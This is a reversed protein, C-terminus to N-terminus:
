CEFANSIVNTDKKKEKKKGGNSRKKRARARARKECGNRRRKKNREGRQLISRESAFSLIEASAAPSNLKGKRDTIDSYFFPFFFVTTQPAGRAGRELPTIEGIRLVSEKLTTKEATASDSDSNSDNWNEVTWRSYLSNAFDTFSSRERSFQSTDRSVLGILNECRRRKGRTRFSGRPVNAYDINGDVM